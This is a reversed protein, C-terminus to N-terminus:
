KYKITFEQEYDPDIQTIYVVAKILQNKNPHVLAHFDKTYQELTPTFKFGGKHYTIQSKIKRYNIAM